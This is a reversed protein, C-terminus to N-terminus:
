NIYSIVACALPKGTSGTTISEPTNYLGLDDEESTVVLARGVVSRPGVLSMLPDALKFEAVDDDKNEINGLDGIHRIANSPSGHPLQLCPYSDFFNLFIVHLM